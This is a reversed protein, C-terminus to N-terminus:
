APEVLYMQLWHYYRNEEASYELGRSEMWEIYEIYNENKEVVDVRFPVRHPDGVPTLKIGESASLAEEYALKSFQILVTDAYTLGNSIVSVLLHTDAVTHHHRLEAFSDNVPLYPPNCVLLDYKENSNLGFFDLSTNVEFTIDKTKEKNISDNLACYLHSICTWDSLTVHRVSPLLAALAIGLFGTGAGLDLIRPQEKDGLYDCINLVMKFADVSPPWLSKCQRGYFTLGKWSIKYFETKFARSLVSAHKKTHIPCTPEIQGHKCNCDWLLKPDQVTLENGCFRYTINTFNDSVNIEFSESTSFNNIYTTAASFDISSETLKSEMLIKYSLNQSHEPVTKAFGRITTLLFEDIESLKREVSIFSCQVKEWQSDLEDVLEQFSLDLASALRKVTNRNLAQLRNTELNTITIRSVAGSLLSVLDARFKMGLETRKNSVWKGFTPPIPFRHRSDKRQRYSKTGIETSMKMLERAISLIHM